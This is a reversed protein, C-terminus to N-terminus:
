ELIGYGIGITKRDDRPGENPITVESAIPFYYGGVGPEGLIRGIGPVNFPFRYAVKVKIPDASKVPPGVFTVEVNAIAYAYKALLYKEAVPDKAYAQYAGWFGLPNPAGDLNTPISSIASQAGSAFPVMSKVAALRAKKQAKEWTTASSWVSASRAAAFAAYVTGLKATLMLAAEIILCMLLAYIPMVMVFSLTYAAGDEGDAFRRLAALRCRRKSSSHTLAHV